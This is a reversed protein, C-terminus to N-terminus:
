FGPMVDNKLITPPVGWAPSFVVNAMAANLSPTQRSPKGVVVRMHFADSGDKRYFLEMLPINVLVHQAELTRPLWRLREMNAAIRRAITDPRLSLLRATASDLKGSAPLGFHQQLARIAQGTTSLSDGAEPQVWPLEKQIIALAVSDPTAKGAVGFQLSSLAADKELYHFRGWAERLMAYTPIASRFGSLAPYSGGGAMAALLQPGNWSSDNSHFWLSDAKRPLLMGLLLERSARLYARTCATDFAIAGATNGGSQLKKFAASLESLGYRAPDIGDGRLSDLDALLAQASETIGDETVWLPTYGAKAYVYPLATSLNTAAKGTDSAPFAATLMGRAEEADLLSSKSEIIKQAPKRSGTAADDCATLFCVGAFFLARVIRVPNLSKM